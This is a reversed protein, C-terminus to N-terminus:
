IFNEKQIGGRICSTITTVYMDDDRAVSFYVKGNCGFKKCTIVFKFKCHRSVSCRISNWGHTRTRRSRDVITWSPMINNTINILWQLFFVFKSRDIATPGAMLRAMLHLIRLWFWHKWILCVSCDATLILTELDPLRFLGYDFYTNGSWAFPVIRLWFWHTNGPWAFPVIRLWFWHKWILYVSCATHRTLYVSCDAILILRSWTFPSIWPLFWALVSGRIYRLHSWTGQLLLCERSVPWV